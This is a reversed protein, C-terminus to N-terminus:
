PPVIVGVRKGPTSSGSVNVSGAWAQRCVCGWMKRRLPCTQAPTVNVSDGDWTVRAGRVDSNPSYQCHGVDSKRGKFINLKGGSRDVFACKLRHVVSSLHSIFVYICLEKLTKDYTCPSLALVNGKGHEGLHHTSALDLVLLYGEAESFLLPLLLPLPGVGPLLTGPSCPLSWVCGTQATLFFGSHLFAKRIGKATLAGMAQQSRETGM